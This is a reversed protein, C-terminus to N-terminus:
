RDTSSRSVRKHAGPVPKEAESTVGGPLKAAAGPAYKAAAAADGRALAKLRLYERLAAVICVLISAVGVIFVILLLVLKTLQKASIGILLKLDVAGSVALLSLGTLLLLAGSKIAAMGIPMRGFPYIKCKEPIEVVAVDLELELKNVRM